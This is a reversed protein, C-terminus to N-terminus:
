IYGVRHMTRKKEKKKVPEEKKMRQFSPSRNLNFEFKNLSEMKEKAYERSEDEDMDESKDREYLEKDVM